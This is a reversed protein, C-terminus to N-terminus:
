ESALAPLYREFADEFCKPDYCKLVGEATRSDKPAIGYRRLLRSLRHPTVGKGDLDAWPSDELGRLQDILKLTPIVGDSRPEFCRRCDFLLRVGLSEDEPDTGSNLAIAAKRALQPWNDGAADAIVLLPEWSDAARDSLAEPIESALLPLALQNPLAELRTRLDATLTYSLAQRFREVQENPKRRRLRIPISRDLVTEPLTGIGALAKASFVEFDQLGFGRGKAAVRTVRTGRANGANLLMRIGEHHKASHPGFITDVEDLLVTCQRDEIVRFLTAETPGITRWPRAVLPELVDLLRTKGCQKEASLIALIPSVQAQEILHTHAVWLACAVAENESPLIVYRRIFAVLDGLVLGVEGCGARGISEYLGTTSPEPSQTRGSM